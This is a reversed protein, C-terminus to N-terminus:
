NKVLKESFLLERKNNRIEVYYLGSKWQSVNIKSQESTPKESYVLQSLSNYISITHEMEIKCEINLVTSTPNPYMFIKGILTANIIGNQFDVSIMEVESWLEDNDKAKVSILNFGDELIIQHYWNTTGNANSWNDNNLKFQVLEITGDSDSATGRVLIDRGSSESDDTPSDIVVLPNMETSESYQITISKIESYTGQNDKARVDITNVGSQLTINHHWTNTGTAIDWVSNNLMLQVETISGDSDSATGTVTLQNNSFIDGNSPSLIELTPIENNSPSYSINISVENSWLNDNDKAKVTITNLGEILEISKSWNNTGIANEWSGSNLKVQVLTIQGDSDSSTGSVSIASSTFEQGLTPSTINITPPVTENIVTIQQYSVNNNENSEEVENQYDAVFLIYYTGPSTGSPITLTASEGDYTDSSSLSSEDDDLYTDSTSVTTNTSLFYGVNPSVTTSSGNSIHQECSVDIVDGSCVTTPTVSQNTITIDPEPIDPEPQEIYCEEYFVNNNEDIESVSEQYDAYFLLYYNGTEIDAPIAITESENSTEQVDLSTVYDDTLYIDSNDYTTNTSLFYGLNSSSASGVWINKVTCSVTLETGTIVTQGTVITNEVTLDPPVIYTVWVQFFDIYGVDGSANDKVCLYWTQDAPAGDWEHLNDITEAINDTSGLDGQHYLYYDHWSGYYYTTLWVDLDGPYTHEIEYYVKIKTINAFDPTGSLLLESSVDSGDNDPINVDWPNYDTITGTQGFSDFSLTFLIFILVYNILKSIVKEM